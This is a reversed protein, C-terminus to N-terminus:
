PRSRQAEKWTLVTAHRRRARALVRQPLGAAVENEALVVRLKTGLTFKLGALLADAGNHGKGALVLVSRPKVGALLLHSAAAVESAARAM